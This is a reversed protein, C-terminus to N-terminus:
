DTIQTCIILRKTTEKNADMSWAANTRNSLYARQEGVRKRNQQERRIDAWDTISRLSVYYLM